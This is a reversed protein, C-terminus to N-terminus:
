PNLVRLEVRRNLARGEETDNSAVPKSEGYGRAVLADALMGKTVLYARVSAARRQSLKLNYADTGKGDSHGAVELKLDKQAGLGDAIEDLIASSGPSLRDSNFDFSVNRLVLTQAERVCGTADVRLGQPTRPCQDKADAVGDRDADADLPCGEQNVQIGAPTNPCQDRDDPVKDGDGDAVPVVQIPEPAAASVPALPPPVFRYLLGLGLHGDDYSSDQTDDHTFIHLWRLSARAELNEILPYSVGVGANAYAEDSDNGDSNELAYGAGILAFPKFKGRPALQYLGDVGAGGIDLDDRPAGDSEAFAGFIQAEVSWDPGLTYGMQGRAGYGTDRDRSSDPIWTFGEAGIYLKSKDLAHVPMSAIACAVAIPALKWLRRKM